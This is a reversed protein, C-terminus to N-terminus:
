EEGEGSLLFYIAYPFRELLERRARRGVQPFRSPLVSM